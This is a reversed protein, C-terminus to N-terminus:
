RPAIETAGFTSEVILVNPAGGPPLEASALHRDEEMSYDGTYLIRTNDIDITFMAAGLVHGAPTPTFRIGKYEVTQYYDIVSIRDICNQLDQLSFCISLTLTLRHKLRSLFPYFRVQENYLGQKHSQLRINDSLLLKMVAKTAHTMYIKGTFDKKALFYPLAACHDIHFHTILILDIEVNEEILDFYPLSDEGERGPHAGCDLMINRQKFSLLICSRGVEQGGGLPRITMFEKGSEDAQSQRYRSGSSDM